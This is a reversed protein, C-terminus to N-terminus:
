LVTEPGLWLDALLFVPTLSSASSSAFPRVKNIKVLVCPSGKDYGFKNQANCPEGEGSFVEKYNFPCYKGAPAVFQPNKCDDVTAVNGGRDDGTDQVYPKLFDELDDTYQKYNGNSGSTFWILTTEVKTSSPRPRFGLGPYVGIRSEDLQWKPYKYDITQMFLLLALCWFAALCLYFLTYFVLLQVASSMSFILSFTM